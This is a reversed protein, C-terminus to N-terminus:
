RNVDDGATSYPDTRLSFFVPSYTIRPPLSLTLAAPMVPYPFGFLCFSLAIFSTKSTFGRRRRRLVVFDRVRRRLADPCNM